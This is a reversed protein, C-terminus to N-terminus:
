FTYAYSIKGLTETYTAAGKTLGKNGYISTRVSFRHKKLYKYTARLSLRNSLLYPSGNLATRSLADSLSINFANKFFGKSITIVPGWVRTNIASVDYTSVNLGTMVTMVTPIFTLVYHVNMAVSNFDTFPSTFENKDNLKQYNLTLLFNHVKTERVITYSQNLLANHTAQRIETLSDPDSNGSQQGLSYNSYSANIQYNNLPTATINVLGTTRNTQARKTNDLNDRQFGLRMNINVKNKWLKISPEFTIKRLDTMFYYAGMSQYQPSLRNYRIRASWTDRQYQLSADVASATYTNQREKILFGFTRTWGNQKTNTENLRTDPTYVSQAAELEFQWYSAFRQKTILGLVLNEAPTLNQGTPVSDLSNEDDKAKLLIIDVYHEDTGYGIKFSYGMRKYSLSRFVTVDEDDLDAETVARKLRGYVFGFRFKGPSLNIGAGNFRHGAMTHKSYNVSNYGLYLRAWKYKPSIGFRNLPQRFERQQETFFFNLPVDIGYVSLTPNGSLSWTFPKRNADKGSVGYFGMEAKVSGKLKFPDESGTNELDQAHVPFWILSFIVVPLFIGIPDFCSPRQKIIKNNM